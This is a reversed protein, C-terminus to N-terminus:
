GLASRRSALVGTTSAPLMCQLLHHLGPHVVFSLCCVQWLEEALHPAYPSLLQVFGELVEQAPQEWKNAGNVFEMMAAIATNFRMEETDETVQLAAPVQYETHAQYPLQSQM